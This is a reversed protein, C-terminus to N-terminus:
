NKICKKLEYGYPNRCRIVSKPYAQKVRKMTREFIGDGFGLANQLDYDSIFKNEKELILMVTEVRQENIAFSTLKNKKADREEAEKRLMGSTKEKFYM